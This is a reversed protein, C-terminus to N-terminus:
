EAKRSTKGASSLDIQDVFEIFRPRQYALLQDECTAALRSKLEERDQSTVVQCAVLQGAISSQKAYVRVDDIGAVNRLVSEVFLPRVKNGGVNILETIRGAFRVRGGDVEVADGTAIWPRVSDADSPMRKKDSRYGRMANASRVFLQKDEVKLEVGGRTPQDLYSAPFGATGDTVSFCRGLETTAYIHAIRATPFTQKLMDLLPQDVAEGGLTIQVLAIESLKGRNAFLVLRRWYSPTASAHTVRGRKMLQVVDDPSDSSDPLVLTGGNVLSQLMVQLGAYLHIRYSLMWRQETAAPSKRVPRVLTSWAHEAAKPEGETGSTLITVTAEEAAQSLEDATASTRSGSSEGAVNEIRPVSVAGGVGEADLTLLCDLGLRVALSQLKEAALHADALVVHVGLEDLAALLGIGEALAPFPFLVSQGRQLRGKMAGVYADSLQALAAWSTTSTATVVAPRDPDVSAKLLSFLM